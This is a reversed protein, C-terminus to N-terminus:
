GTSLIDHLINFCLFDCVLCVIFGDKHFHEFHGCVDFCLDWYSPVEEPVAGFGAVCVVINPCWIAM